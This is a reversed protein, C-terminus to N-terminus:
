STVHKSRIKILNSLMASISRCEALLESKINAEIYGIEYAITVQTYIEALSGKATYLYRVSQKNTGSEDGESINSPVSVTARRLQDRLGFDKDFIGKGTLKYIRVSLDTSKQWVLLDEFKGM